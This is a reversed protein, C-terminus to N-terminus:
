ENVCVNSLDQQSQQDVGTLNPLDICLVVERNEEGEGWECVSSQGVKTKKGSWILLSYMCIYYLFRHCVHEFVCVCMCVTM